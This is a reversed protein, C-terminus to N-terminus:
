TFMNVNQTRKCKRKNVRNIHQAQKSVEGKTDKKWAQPWHVLYMDLHDLRLDSLSQRCSGIVDAHRDNWVKSTIWLDDRSVGGRIVEAFAAGIEKENGYVSACDFHRYGAAAAGIVAEAVQNATVHDSGFTGLGIAPM